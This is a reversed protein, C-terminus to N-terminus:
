LLVQGLFEWFIQCTEQQIDVRVWDLIYRVCVYFFMDRPAPHATFTRQKHTSLPLPAFNVAPMAHPPPHAHTMVLSTQLLVRSFAKVERWGDKGGCRQGVEKTHLRGKLYYGLRSLFLSLDSDNEDLQDSDLSRSIPYIVRTTGLWPKHRDARGRVLCSLRFLWQPPQWFLFEEWSLEGGPVLCFEHVVVRLVCSGLVPESSLGLENYVILLILDDFVM